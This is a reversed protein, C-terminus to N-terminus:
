NYKQMKRLQELIALHKSIPESERVHTSALEYLLENPESEKAKLSLKDMVSVIKDILKQNDVFCETSGSFKNKPIYSYKNIKKLLENEALYAEGDFKFTVQHILQYQYPHDSIYSEKNKLIREVKKNLPIDSDIVKTKGFAFRGETVSNNTVGIKFFSERTKENWMKFLYLKM